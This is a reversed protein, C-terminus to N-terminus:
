QIFCLFIVMVMGKHNDAIDSSNSPSDSIMVSAPTLPKKLSDYKSNVGIHWDDVVGSWRSPPM